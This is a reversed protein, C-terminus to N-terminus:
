PLSSFGGPGLVCGQTKHHPFGVPLTFFARSVRSVFHRLGPSLSPLCTQPRQSVTHMQTHRQRLHMHCTDMRHPCTAICLVERKLTTVHSLSGRGRFGKCQFHFFTTQMRGAEQSKGVLDCFPRHTVPFLPIFWAEDPVGWGEVMSVLRKM